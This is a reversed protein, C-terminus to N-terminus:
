VIITMYSADFVKMFMLIVRVNYCCKMYVIYETVFSVGYDHDTLSHVNM